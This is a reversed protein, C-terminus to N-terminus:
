SKLLNLKELNHYHSCTSFLYIFMSHNFLLLKVYLDFYVQTSIIIIILSHASILFNTEM